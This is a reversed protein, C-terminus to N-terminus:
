PLDVEAIAIRGLPREVWDPVRIVSPGNINTGISSDSAPTIIPNGTLRRVALRAATRKEGPAGAALAPGLAVVGLLLAFRRV